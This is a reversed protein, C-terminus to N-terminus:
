GGDVEGRAPDFVEHWRHWAASEPRMAVWQRLAVRVTARGHRSLISPDMPVAGDRALADLVACKLAWSAPDGYGKLLNQFRDHSQPDFSKPHGDDDQAPHAPYLTACPVWGEPIPVTASHTRAERVQGPLVHTHPGAPTIGNPPPVPQYVEVRAFPVLFVRHPSLRPMEAMLPNDADLISRGLQARFVDRVDPVESRVCIDAQRCALGVDFLTAGRDAPRLAHADAGLDTLCRRRHGAALPTPLCFAVAHSWRGDHGGATEYAFARIGPVVSISIAGRGTIASVHDDTITVAVQEDPDRHFEAIAGFTGVSWSSGPDDLHDAYMARLAEVPTADRIADSM